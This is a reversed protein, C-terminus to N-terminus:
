EISNGLITENSPLKAVLTEIEWMRTTGEDYVLDLWPASATVGWQDPPAGYNGPARENYFPFREDILVHSVGLRVASAEPLCGEVWGLVCRVDRDTDVYARPPEWTWVHPSPVKNLAAVWLSMTFANSVIGESDGQILDLAAATEVTVMDSYDAQNNFSWNSAFVWAGLLPVLVLATLTAPRHFLLGGAPPCEMDPCERVAQLAYAVTWAAGIYLFPTLLYKSRYFINIIMEDTSWWLGMGALLLILGGMAKIERSGKTILFAGLPAGVFLLFWAGDSFDALYLWPGPYHLIESNPAVELYWPLASLALLGGIALLWHQIRLFPTCFSWYWPIVSGKVELWRFMLVALGWFPLIIAILGGSTQNVFLTLPVVAVLIVAHPWDGENRDLMVFAWIGIMILAFGELPLAGTVMMESHLPDFAVFATATLRSLPGLFLGALVYTAIIPTMAALASWLKFGIDDGLLETFPVLQWGPALPPRPFGAGTPEDGLVANRGLLYAGGDVGLYNDHTLVFVLRLTL